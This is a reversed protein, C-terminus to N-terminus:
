KQAGWSNITRSAIVGTALQVLLLIFYRFMYVPLHEISGIYLLIILCSFLSRIGHTTYVTKKVLFTSCLSSGMFAIFFYPSVSLLCTHISLLFLSVLTLLTAQPMLIVSSYAGVLFLTAPQRFFSLTFTDIVFFLLLSICSVFFSLHKKYARQM